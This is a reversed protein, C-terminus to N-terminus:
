DQFLTWLGNNQQIYQKLGGLKHHNIEYAMSVLVVRRLLAIEYSIQFIFSFVMDNNKWCDQVSVLSKATTELYEGRNIRKWKSPLQTWQCYSCNGCVESEKFGLFLKRHSGIHRCSKWSIKLCQLRGTQFM